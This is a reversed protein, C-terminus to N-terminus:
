SLCRGFVHARAPDAARSFAPDCGIPPRRMSTVLSSPTAATLKPSLPLRDCKTTRNVSQAEARESRAADATSTAATFAGAILCSLLPIAVAAKPAFSLLNSRPRAIRATRFNAKM